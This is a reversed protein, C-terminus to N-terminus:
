KAVCPTSLDELKNTAVKYNQKEQYSAKIDKNKGQLATWQPHKIANKRKIDLYKVM